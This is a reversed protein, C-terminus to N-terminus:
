VTHIYESPSLGTENKFARSFSRYDQYGTLYAIEGISEKKSKLLIKAYNMRATLIYDRFNIGTKDKFYISFYSESLNVLDALEKTKINRHLNNQIYDKATQIISNTSFKAITSTQLTSNHLSDNTFSPIHTLYMSRIEDCQQQFTARFDVINLPKLFYSKVGYTIARQAFLFDQYGSLILFRTAINHEKANQIVDLGDIEPMHIDMIAIDPKLQLIGSLADRGNDATGVIETDFPRASVIHTLGNRIASEDDAIFVKIPQHLIIVEKWHILYISVYM